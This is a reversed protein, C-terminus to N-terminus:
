FDAISGALEPFDVFPNRSGQVEFIDDHRQIEYSDVVDEQHWRRLFGEEVPDIPLEYRVSFYFLARAVNGKHSPPPEFFYANKGRVKGLIATPCPLRGVAQDVEAFRFNGRIENLRSDSPFLHLLDSRQLNEGFRSNFRSQPWTHEVNLVDDNPASDPSPGRGRPFNRSSYDRDCYVDHIWYNNADGELDIRGLLVRRADEYKLSKHKFCKPSQLPCDKVLTDPAGDAQPVHGARLVLRLLQKLGEDREGTQVKNYFLEGYYPILVPRTPNATRAADLQDRQIQRDRENADVGEYDYGDASNGRSDQPSHSDRPSRSDRSGQTDQQNRSDRHHRQNRQARRYRSNKADAFTPFVSVALFFLGALLFVRVAIVNM